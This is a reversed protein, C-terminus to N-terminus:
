AERICFNHICLMVNFFIMQFDLINGRGVLNEGSNEAQSPSKKLIM